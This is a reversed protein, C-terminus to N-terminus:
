SEKIRITRAKGPVRTILDNRELRDIHYAVVSPSSINCGAQIERVTPSYGNEETFTRIFELINDDM